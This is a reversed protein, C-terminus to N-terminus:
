IYASRKTRIQHSIELYRYNAARQFLLMAEPDFFLMRLTNAAAEVCFGFTDPKIFIGCAQTIYESVSENFFSIVPINKALSERIIRGIRKESLVILVSSSRPLLNKDREVFQILNLASEIKYEIAFEEIMAKREEEYILNFQIKKQHKPNVSHYLESFAAITMELAADSITRSTSTVQFNKMTLLKM